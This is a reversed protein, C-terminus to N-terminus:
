RYGFKHRLAEDGSLMTWGRCSAEHSTVQRIEGDETRALRRQFNTFRYHRGCVPCVTTWSKVGHSMIQEASLTSLEGRRTDSITSGRCTAPTLAPGVSVSRIQRGSEAGPHQDVGPLDRPEVGAAAQVELDARGSLNTGPGRAHYRHHLHARGEDGFLARHLELRMSQESGPMPMRNQAASAPALVVVCRRGLLRHLNGARWLALPSVGAVFAGTPSTLEALEGVPMYGTLICHLRYQEPPLDMRWGSYFHGGDPLHVTIGHGHDRTM